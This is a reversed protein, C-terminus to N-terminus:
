TMTKTLSLRHILPHEVHTIHHTHTKYLLLVRVRERENHMRTSSTSCTSNLTKLTNHTSDNYFKYFKVMNIGLRYLNVNRAQHTISLCKCSPRTSIVEFFRTEHEHPTVNGECCAKSICTESISNKSLPLISCPKRLTGPPGVRASHLRM